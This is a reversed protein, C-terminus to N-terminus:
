HPLFLEDPRDDKGLEGVDADGDALFDGVYTHENSQINESTCAQQFPLIRRYKVCSQKGECGLGYGAELRRGMGEVECTWKEKGGIVSGEHGTSM